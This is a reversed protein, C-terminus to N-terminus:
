LALLMSQKILESIYIYIYIYIIWFIMIGCCDLVTVEFKLHHTNAIQYRHSICWTCSFAVANSFFIYTYIFAVTNM